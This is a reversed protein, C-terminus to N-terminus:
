KKQAEIVPNIQKQILKNYNFIEFPKSKTKTNGIM